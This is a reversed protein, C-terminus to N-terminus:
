GRRQGLPTLQLMAIEGSNTLQVNTIEFVPANEIAAGPLQISVTKSSSNLIIASIDFSPSFEVTTIQFAATLQVSAQGQQSPTLQVPAGEFGSVIQLGAINFSPSGLMAPKQQQSPTLRVQGLSNPAPQVKAIEFNVQLNMPQPQQSSALRMTVVKSIPRLQLAGMKFTPTLQMSAIECSLTIQVATQMGTAPMAQSGPAAAPVSQPSSGGASTRIVPATPTQRTEPMNETTTPQSALDDQPPIADPGIQVGTDPATEPAIESTFHYIEESASIGIPEETSVITQYPVPQGQLIPKAEDSTPPEVFPEALAIEEPFVLPAPTDIVTSEPSIPEYISTEQAVFEPATEAQVIPESVWETQDEAIVSSTEDSVIRAVISTPVFEPEIESFVPESPRNAEGNEPEQEIVPGVCSESFEAFSPAAIKDQGNSRDPAPEVEAVAPTDLARKALPIVARRLSPESAKL